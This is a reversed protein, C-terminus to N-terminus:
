GERNARDFEVAFHALHLAEAADEPSRFAFTMGATDVLWRHRTEDKTILGLQVDGLSALLSLAPM